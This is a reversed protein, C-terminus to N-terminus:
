TNQQGKQRELKLGLKQLAAFASSGSVPKISAVEFELTSPNQSQQAPASAPLLAALLLCEKEHEYLSAPTHNTVPEGCLRPSRLPGLVM